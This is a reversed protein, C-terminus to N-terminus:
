SIRPILPTGPEDLAEGLYDVLFNQITQDAPCLHDTLLRNKEQLNALMARGLEMFSSTSKEFTPCGRAALKLNVYDLLNEQDLLNSRTEPDFGITKKLDISM